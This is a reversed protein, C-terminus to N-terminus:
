RMRVPDIWDAFRRKREALDRWVVINGMGDEAQLLRM